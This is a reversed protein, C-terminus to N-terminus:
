LVPWGVVGGFEMGKLWGEEGRGLGILGWPVAGLWCLGVWVAWIGVGYLNLFLGFRRERLRIEALSQKATTIETALRSLLTDYDTPRKKFIGSSTSGTRNPETQNLALLKRAM